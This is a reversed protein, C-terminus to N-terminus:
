AAKADNLLLRDYRLFLREFHQDLTPIGIATECAREALRKRDGTLFASIKDAADRSNGARFTAGAGQAIMSSAGGEDPVILPLGSAAAEAAVLGFTEAECGHLLADASAYVRALLKRDMIPSLLQIHPNGGIARSLHRRHRGDGVIILGVQSTSAAMECARIIMPWRKEASHRGVGLLLTASEPLSCRALLDRRLDMDRLNPSFVGADIGMPETVVRAVGGAALRDALSKNAAVTLDFKGAARRLHRWFFEFQRDIVNRSAVAGFWRYAYTSLPDAHMILARGASGAWDAVINATRWPSSAEVFDPCARDLLEHVPDANEFYRYRRDVVLQPSKLHIIRAREGFTEVRNTDSPVIISMDHGLQPAIALKCEVYTKVGGGFPTYFASVDVIKM